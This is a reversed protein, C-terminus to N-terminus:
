APNGCANAGCMLIVLSPTRFIVIDDFHSSGSSNNVTGKYFTTFTTDRANGSTGESTGSATNGTTGGAYAKLASGRDAGSSILVYAALATTGADNDQVTVGGTPFATSGSTLCRIMGNSSTLDSGSCPTGKVVYRIRDGWGDSAIEESLGLTIWPVTRNTTRCASSACGSVYAGGGDALGATSYDVSNITTLVSSAQSGDAPCPLCGNTVVYLQLAKDIAALHQLTLDTKSVDRIPKIVKVAAATVLGIIVLVIAMEILTFGLSRKMSVGHPSYRGAAGIM